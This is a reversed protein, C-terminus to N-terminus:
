CAICVSLRPTQKSCTWFLRRRMANQAIACHRWQTEVANSVVARRAGRRDAVNKFATSVSHPRREPTVPSKSVFYMDESSCCHQRSLYAPLKWLKTMCDRANKLWITSMAKVQVCPSHELIMCQNVYKKLYIKINKKWIFIFHYKRQVYIIASYLNCPWHQLILVFCHVYM